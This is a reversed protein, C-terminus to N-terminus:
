GVEGKLVGNDSKHCRSTRTLLDDDGWGVVMAVRLLFMKIRAHRHYDTKQPLFSDIISMESGRIWEKGASRGRREKPSRTSHIVEGSAEQWTFYFLSRRSITDKSSIKSDKPLGSSSRLHYDHFISINICMPSILTLNIEPNTLRAASLYHYCTCTM